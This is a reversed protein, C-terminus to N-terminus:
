HKKSSATKPLKGEEGIINLLSDLEEESEVGLKCRLRWRAQHVSETRIKTLYAIQRNTMGSYICCALRINNASLSSCYQKLRRIFEPNIRETMRIYNLWDDADADSIALMRKLQRFTDNSTNNSNSLTEIDSKIKQLMMNKEQAVLSNATERRETEEKEKIQQEMAKGLAVHRQYLILWAALGCIILSLSAIVWVVTRNHSKRKGEYELMALRRQLDLNKVNVVDQSIRLSDMVESARETYYLASDLSGYQKVLQANNNMILARYNINTVYPYERLAKKGYILASDKSNHRKFWDSLMSYQLGRLHSFEESNPFEHIIKRLYKVSDTLVFQNRLITERVMIDSKLSSDSVLTSNESLAKDLNGSNAYIIVLNIRNRAALGSAGSIKFINDARKWYDYATASDNLAIMMATLNSYSLATMLSDGIQRFYTLNSLFARYSEATNPTATNIAHIIRNYLYPNDKESTLDRLKELELIRDNRNSITEAEFFNIRGADPHLAGSMGIRMSDITSTLKKKDAGTLLLYDM